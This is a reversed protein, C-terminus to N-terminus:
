AEEIDGDVQPNVAGPTSNETPSEQGVSPDV